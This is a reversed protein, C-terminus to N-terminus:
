KAGDIKVKAKLKLTLNVLADCWGTIVRFLWRKLASLLGFFAMKIIEVM